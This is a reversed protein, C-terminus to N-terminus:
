TFIETRPSSTSGQISAQQSLLEAVARYVEDVTIADMCALRREHTCTRSRCPVCAVGQAQIVRHGPGVPGTRAPDAAGFLAVVPTGVATAMHMPGTDGSVLLACSQLVGGLGLVDTKGTLDLVTVGCQEAIKRSLDIEIGGGILIVRAQLELVLRRALAAFSDPNWRNVPHSAGPNLAVAHRDTHGTRGLLEAAFRRGEPGPDFELRPDVDTPSIGLPALTELHNLVAHVTRGRAKHYVLIRCPLAAVALLWVKLNSRQFHIVLDYRGRRIRNWLHIFPFWSDHERRRDFVITEHILPNHRFLDVSPANGVVMSIESGPYKDALARVVPTIQLLDGLAGPKILLIRLYESM